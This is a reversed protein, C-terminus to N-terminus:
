SRVAFAGSILPRGQFKFVNKGPRLDQLGAQVMRRVLQPYTDDLKVFAKKLAPPRESPPLLLIALQEIQRSEVPFPARLENAIDVTAAIDLVGARAGLLPLFHGAESYAFSHLLYTNIVDRSEVVSQSALFSASFSRLRVQARRQAVTRPRPFAREPVGNAYMHNLVTVM